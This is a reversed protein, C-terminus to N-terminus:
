FFFFDINSNEVAPLHFSIGTDRQIFVSIVAEDSPLALFVCVCVCVPPVSFVHLQPFTLMCRRVKAGGVFASM